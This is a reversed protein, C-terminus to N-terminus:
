RAVPDVLLQGLRQVALDPQGGAARQDDVAGLRHGDDVDVGPLEGAAPPLRSSVTVLFLRSAASSITRWSRSRSMPPMMTMSKMSMTSSLLRSRTSRRSSSHRPRSRVLCWTASTVESPGPGSSGCAPRGPGARPTRRSRRPRCRGRCWMWVSGTSFLVPSRRRRRACSRERRRRPRPPASALAPATRRRPGPPRPGSRPSRPRLRGRHGDLVRDLAPPGAPGLRRPSGLGTSRRAPRPRAASAGRRRRLALLGTVSATSGPDAAPGGTQGPPTGTRVRSRGVRSAGLPATTSAHGHRLRRLEM